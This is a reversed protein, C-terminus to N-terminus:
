YAPHITNSGARFTTGTVVTESKAALLIVQNLMIEANPPKTHYLAQLSQPKLGSKLAVAPPM